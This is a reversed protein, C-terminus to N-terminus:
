GIVLEKWEDGDWGGFSCERHCRRGFGADADDAHPLDALAMQVIVAFHLVHFHHGHGIHGLGLGVPHRGQVADRVDVAVEALQQLPVVDLGHIDTQM